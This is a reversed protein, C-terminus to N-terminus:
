MMNAAIVYKFRMRTTQTVSCCLACTQLDRLRHKHASLMRDHLRRFVPDSPAATGLTVPKSAYAFELFSHHFSQSGPPFPSSFMKPV